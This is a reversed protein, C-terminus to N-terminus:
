KHPKLHKRLIMKTRYVVKVSGGFEKVAGLAKDSADTVELTVPTKLATFKDSGKGLLKVGNTIKSLAGVEILNKMTVPQDPNLHGKELHYAVTGLNLKELDHDRNFRGKRFGYKPFRKAM